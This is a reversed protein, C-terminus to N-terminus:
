FSGMFLRPFVLLLVDKFAKPHLHGVDLVNMFPEPSFIIQFHFIFWHGLLTMSKQMNCTECYFSENCWGVLDYRKQIICTEPWGERAWWSPTTSFRWRPTRCGNGASPPPWWTQWEDRSSPWHWHWSKCRNNWTGFMWLPGKSTLWYFHCKAGTVFPMNYAILPDGVCM